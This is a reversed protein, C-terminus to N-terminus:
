KWKTEEFEKLLNRVRNKYTMPRIHEQSSELVRRYSQEDNMYFLVKDQFESFTDFMVSNIGDVFGLAKADGGRQGIHLTGCMPIEYWKTFTMGIWQGKYFHCSEGSKEQVQCTSVGIRCRGIRTAYEEPSLGKIQSYSYQSRRLRGNIVVKRYSSLWIHIKNRLDIKLNSAPICIDMTKALGRDYHIKPNYAWPMWFFRLDRDFYDKFCPITSGNNVVIGDYKHHNSCSNLIDNILRTHCDGVSIVVPPGYEHFPRLSLLDVKIFNTYILDFSKNEFESAIAEDIVKSDRMRFIDLFTVEAQRSLEEFVSGDNSYKEDKPTYGLHLIKM